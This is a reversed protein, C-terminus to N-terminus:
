QSRKIACYELWIGRNKGDWYGVRIHQGIDDDIERNGQIISGLCKFKEATPVATDCIIIDKRSEEEEQTFKCALYKTKM